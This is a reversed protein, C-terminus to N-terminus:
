LRSDSLEFAMHARLIGIKHLLLADEAALDDGELLPRRRPLLFARLLQSRPHAALPAIDCFGLCRICTWLFCSNLALLISFACVADAAGGRCLGAALHSVNVVLDFAESARVAPPVCSLMFREQSEPCLDEPERMRAGIKAPVFTPLAQTRESIGCCGHEELAAALFHPVIRLPVDLEQGQLLALLIGDRLPPLVGSLSLLFCLPLFLLVVDVQMRCRRRFCKATLLLFSFRLLSLQLLPVFRLQLLFLLALFGPFLVLSSFSHLFQPSSLIKLCLLLLQSRM